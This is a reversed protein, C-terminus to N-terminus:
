IAYLELYRKVTVDWTHNEFINQVADHQMQRILDPNLNYADMARIITNHLASATHEAYSFGNLGDRVKVLGGTSRVIPLNGMLQAIMDTLGCPEYLSPILFFDGAAYILNALKENFGEFFVIRSAFRHDECLLRFRSALGADGSGLVCLLFDGARDSLLEIAQALVDLGKQSTFRSIVTLLPLDPQHHFRGNKEVGYPRHQQSVSFLLEKTRKKGELDGKLPSFGWPLGLQEPNEPNFAKPNIANTIGYLHIGRLNLEHGLHGTMADLDTEQLELAYNESVTNINGYGAGALFPDFAGNLLNAHIVRLPLGTISMAFALDYVEQHYGLGANHITVLTKTGNYFHRLWDLEHIMAPVCSCHGDHLHLVDPQEKILIGFALAAKQHLINMAFYDYHAQGPQYGSDDKTYAYIGHKESFRPSDILIVQVGEIQKSWFGAQEQREEFAYNMAVQCRIEMKEFGLYAPDLFGYCPLFVRVNKGTRVLAESLDTAVDKLGGAEAIGRYERSLMWITRITGDHPTTQSSQNMTIIRHMIKDM